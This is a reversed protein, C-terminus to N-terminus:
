QSRIKIDHKKANEFKNSNQMTRKVNSNATKKWINVIQLTFIAKMLKAISDSAKEPRIHICKNWM